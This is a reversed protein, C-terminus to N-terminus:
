TLAECPLSQDSSPDLNSDYNHGFHWIIAVSADLLNLFHSIYYLHAMAQQASGGVKVKDTIIWFLTTTTAWLQAIKWSKLIKLKMFSEDM